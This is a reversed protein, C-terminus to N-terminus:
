KWFKQKNEKIYNEVNKIKHKKFQYELNDNHLKKEKYAYEKTFRITNDNYTGTYEVMYYDGLVNKFIQMKISDTEIKYIGNNWIQAKENLFWTNTKKVIGNVTNNKDLEKEFIFILNENYYKVSDMNYVYSTTFDKQIVFGDDTFFLCRLFKLQYNFSKDKDYTGDNKLNNKYYLSDNLIRYYYGDTRFKSINKGIDKQSFLNERHYVAPSCAYLIFFISILIINRVM